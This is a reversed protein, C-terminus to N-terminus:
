PKRWYAGKGDIDILPATINAVDHFDDVAQECGKVAKYDDVIVFGGPSVKDYLAVLADITSEYMDGDLRLVAIKEIPAKPLTDKFWGKLFRVNEALLGYAEFNERVQEESIALLAGVAHHWDQADAPYKPNPPPLGAFSDAVWVRRENTEDYTRLVAQMMICAGGRWVGTEVFDGPIGKSIMEECADRLQRLRKAGIMTHATAPWDLGRERKLPDFQGPEIYFTGSTKGFSAREGKENKVVGFWPDLPPDKYILGLLCREMLDLYMRGMTHVDLDDIM